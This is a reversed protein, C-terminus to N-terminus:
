WHGRDNAQRFSERMAIARDRKTGASLPRVERVQGHYLHRSEKQAAVRMKRRELQELHEKAKEIAESVKDAQGTNILARAIELANEPIGPGAWLDAPHALEFEDCGACMDILWYNKKHPPHPTGGRQAMQRYLRGSLTPRAIVVAGLFPADHGEVLLDACCLGRIRGEAHSEKIREQEPDSDKGSISDTPIGKETLLHAVAEAAKVGPVFLIFRRWTGLFQAARVAIRNVQTGIKEALDAETFDGGSPRLGSLNMGAPVIKVIPEVVAAMAVADPLSLEYAITEFVGGLGEGDGPDPTATLGLVRAEPLCGLITRYQGAKARHCEDIVVLGFPPLGRELRETVRRVMSQRTSLIVDARLVEELSPRNIGYDRVVKLDARAFTGAAQNAGLLFKAHALFAVQQRTRERFTHIVSAAVTTKGTRCPMVVMCSRHREWAAFVRDHAVDQYDRTTIRGLTRPM